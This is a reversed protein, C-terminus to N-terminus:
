PAPRASRGSLDRHRRQHRQADRRLGDGRFIGGLRLHRSPVVGASKRRRPAQRDGRHAPRGGQAPLDLQAPLVWHRRRARSGPRGWAAGIEVGEKYFGKANVMGYGSGGAPRTALASARRAACRWRARRGCRAPRSALGAPTSAPSSTPPTPAWPTTSSSGATPRPSSSRGEVLPSSRGPRASAPSSTLPRRRARSRASPPSAAPATTPPSPAGRRRHDARRRRLPRHRRLRRHRPQRGSTTSGSGCTGTAKFDTRPAVTFETGGVSIQTCTSSWRAALM